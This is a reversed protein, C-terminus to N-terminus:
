VFCSVADNNGVVWIVWVCSVTLNATLGLVPAGSGAGGITQQMIDPSKWRYFNAASPSVNCLTQMVQYWLVYVVPGPAVILGAWRSDPECVVKM